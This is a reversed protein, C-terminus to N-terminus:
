TTPRLVALYHTRLLPISGLLAALLPARPALWRALPPALTVRRLAVRCDPFLARIERRRIGRVDPNRPNDMHFDYWLILGDPKVVRRMERAIRHRVQADLVSSLVTAQLVLDFTGREFPLETASACELRVEPPCLRRAEALRAPLLDVGTLHEPRAGWRIFERLWDGTGCGVDLLTHAALPLCRERALTEVVAREREQILLVHGANSWAYRPDHEPRKAWAQQFRAEERAASRPRPDQLASKAPVRIV